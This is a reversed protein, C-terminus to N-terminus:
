PVCSRQMWRELGQESFRVLGDIERTFPYDHRHQYVYRRTVGLQDAVQAATLWRDAKGNPSPAGLAERLEAVTLTLTTDPSLHAVAQRLDTVTM